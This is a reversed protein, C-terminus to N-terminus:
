LCKSSRALSDIQQLYFIGYQFHHNKKCGLGLTKKGAILDAILDAIHSLPLITRSDTSKGMSVTCNIGTCVSDGRGDVLGNCMTPWLAVVHPFCVYGSWGTEGHKMM